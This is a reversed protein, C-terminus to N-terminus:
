TKERESKKFEYGDGKFFEIMRADGLTEWIRYLADKLHLEDATGEVVCGFGYTGMIEPSMNHIKKFSMRLNFLAKDSM